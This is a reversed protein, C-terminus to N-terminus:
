AGGDGERLNYLRIIDHFPITIEDHVIQSRYTPPYPYHHNVSFSLRSKKVSIVTVISSQLTFQVQSVRFGHDAHISINFGDGGRCMPFGASCDLVTSDSSKSGMFVILFM